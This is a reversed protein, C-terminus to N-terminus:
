KLGITLGTYVASTPTGGCPAAGGLQGPIGACAGSTQGAYYKVIASVFPALRAGLFVDYIPGGGDRAELAGLGGGVGAFLQKAEYELELTAMFLRENTAFTGAGSIELKVPVIPLSAIGISGAVGVTTTGDGSFFVGPGIATDALVPSSCLCLAGLVASGLRLYNM